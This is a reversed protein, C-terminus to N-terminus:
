TWILSVVNCIRMIGAKLPHSRYYNCTFKSVFLGLFCAAGSWVPSDKVQGVCGLPVLVDCVLSYRDNLYGAEGM